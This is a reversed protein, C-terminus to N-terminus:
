NRENISFRQAAHSADDAGAAVHARDRSAEQHLADAVNL